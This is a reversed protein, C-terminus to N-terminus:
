LGIDRRSKGHSSDTVATFGDELIVRIPLAEQLSQGLSTDFRFPLDMRIAQHRIMKVQHGAFRGSQSRTSQPLQIAGVANSRAPSSPVVFFRHWSLSAPAATAGPFPSSAPSSQLTGACPSGGYAPSNGSPPSFEVIAPVSGKVVGKLELFAGFGLCWFSGRLWNM